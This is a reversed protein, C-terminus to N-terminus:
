REETLFTFVNKWELQKGKGTIKGLPWKTTELPAPINIIGSSFQFGEDFGRKIKQHIKLQPLFRFQKSFM